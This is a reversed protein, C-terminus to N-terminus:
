LDTENFLIMGYLSAEDQFITQGRNKVVLRLVSQNGSAQAMIEFPEALRIDVRPQSMDSYISQLTYQKAEGANRIKLNGGDDFCVAVSIPTGNLSCTFTAVPNSQRIEQPEPASIDAGGCGTLLITSLIALNRMDTDLCEQNLKWDVYSEIPKRGLLPKGQITALQSTAM